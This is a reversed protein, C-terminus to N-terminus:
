AGQTTYSSKGPWWLHVVQAQRGLGGPRPSSAASPPGDHQCSLEARQTPKSLSAPKQLSPDLAVAAAPRDRRLGRRPSCGAAEPQTKVHEGRQVSATGRHTRVEGEGLSMLWVPDAHM